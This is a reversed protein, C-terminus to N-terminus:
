EIILVSEDGAEVDFLEDYDESPPNGDHVLFKRRQLFAERTFTYPDISAEDVFESEDLLNARSNILSLVTLPLFSLGGIYTIPNTVYSSGYNPVNRATNLGMLPINLYAGQDVGWVALTQGFDEEHVPLGMPTAVDFLGGIGVTTNIIFRLLDSFGINLKGQLFSNLVVNLYRLNDFFNTIVDRVPEPTIHRYGRAVPRMFNRDLSDNFNYVQRNTKEYPDNNVTGDPSKTTACGSLLVTAILMAPMCRLWGARAGALTTKM